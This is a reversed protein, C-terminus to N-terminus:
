FDGNAIIDDYRYETYANRVTDDGQAYQLILSEPTEGDWGYKDFYWDVFVTSLNDIEDDIQRDIDDTQNYPARPDHEAGWPYNEKLIKSVSEKIVKHLQSETLRIINTKM